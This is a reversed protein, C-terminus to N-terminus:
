GSPAASGRSTHRAGSDRRGDWAAFSNGRRASSKRRTRTARKPMARRFDTSASWTTNRRGHCSRSTRGSRLKSAPHTAYSTAIRMAPVRREQLFTKFLSDTASATTTASYQPFLPLVVLRTVGNRVMQSAVDRVSPSGVIMGFNVPANPFRSQLLETQRRTYHMLPSGTVPDWIRAYKEASEKPRSRLIFGNLILKWKWGQKEIVRPDSLFQKLYPKLAEATPAEPTGLQILLIGTM